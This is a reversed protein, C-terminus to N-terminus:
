YSLCIQRVSLNVSKALGARQQQYVVYRLSRPCQTKAPTEDGTVLTIFLHNFTTLMSYSALAMKKPGLTRIKGLSSFVSDRNVSNQYGSASHENSISEASLTKGQTLQLASCQHSIHYLRLYTNPRQGQKRASIYFGQLKKVSLSSPFM